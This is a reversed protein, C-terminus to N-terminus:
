DVCAFAATNMPGDLVMPAVFGGATLGGVFTTTQWRGCPIPAVLRQGRSAYGSPRAMSTTFWTEDPRWTSLTAGTPHESRPAVDWPRIM